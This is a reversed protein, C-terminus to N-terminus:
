GPRSCAGRWAGAVPTEFTPAVFLAAVIMTLNLWVPTFAPIAYRHFSNLLAGAFATLSIFGLYPFTIRLMDATMALRQPDGRSVRRSCSARVAAGRRRGASQDGIMVVIFNGGMVAVFERMQQMPGRNRYGALVPVFAQSFAGEAFLRRFFNPIRFAVFFADATPTAGFFYSM